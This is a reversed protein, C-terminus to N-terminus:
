FLHECPFVPASRMKQMGGQVCVCLATVVCLNLFAHMNSFTSAPFLINLTDKTRWVVLPSKDKTHWVVLPSHLACIASKSKPAGCAPVAKGTCKHEPRCKGSPAHLCLKRRYMQSHANTSMGVSGLLRTCAYNEGTCKHIHM